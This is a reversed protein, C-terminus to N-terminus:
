SYRSSVCRAPILLTVGSRHDVCRACTKRLVHTGYVFCTFAAHHHAITVYYVGSASLASCPSSSSSSAASSSSSSSCRCPSLRSTHAPPPPHRVSSAGADCM